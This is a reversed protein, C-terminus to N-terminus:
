HYHVDAMSAAGLIKSMVDRSEMARQWVVDLDAQINM